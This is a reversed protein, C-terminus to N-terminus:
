RYDSDIFYDSIRLHLGSPPQICNSGSVKWFRLTIKGLWVEQKRMSDSWGWFAHLLKNFFFQKLTWSYNDATPTQVLNDGSQSIQHGHGCYM